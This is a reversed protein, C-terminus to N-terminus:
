KAVKNVLRTIYVIIIASVFKVLAFLDTTFKCYKYTTVAPLLIYVHLECNACQLMLRHKVKLTQLAFKSSYGIIYLIKNVYLQYVINVYEHKM